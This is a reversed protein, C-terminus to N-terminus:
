IAMDLTRATMREVTYKDASFSAATFDISLISLCWMDVDFKDVTIDIFEGPVQLNGYAVTKLGALKAELLSYSFSEKVSTHAYIGHLQLELAVAERSLAGLFNVELGKVEAYDSLMKMQPGAGVITLKYDGDIDNIAAFVDLLFVLNKRAELVGVFIISKQVRIRSSQIKTQDIGLEIVGILKILDKSFHNRLLYQSYPESVTVVTHNIKNIIDIENILLKKKNKELVSQSQLNDSWVAHLITISPTPSNWSIYIDEFIRIDVKYNFYIKYLIRTIRDKFFYGLPSYIFNVMKEVIHPFYRCWIPLKDLTIFNVTWGIRQLEVELARAHTLVGGFRLFGAYYIIATKASM